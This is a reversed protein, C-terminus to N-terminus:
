QNAEAYFDEARIDYNLNETKDIIREQCINQRLEFNATVVLTKPDKQKIEAFFNKIEDGKKLEKEFEKLLEQKGFELIEKESKETYKIDQEYYTIKEICFGGLDYNKSKSEYHEFKIASPTFIKEGSKQSKISIKTRKKGTLIKEEFVKKYERSISKNTLAYIEGYSHVYRIGTQVSDVAGSVLLDGKEVFERKKVMTQGERVDLEDIIGDCAAVLDCPVSFDLPEEKEIREKIEVYARSGKINIGIWAVTDLKTMISNQVKKRDINDLRAGKYIGFEKLASFIEETKTAKNGSIDIGMLHTSYFIVGGFFLVAGFLAFRRKKYRHVAFPAGTKKIIKVKTKTKKAASKIKKFDKAYINAFLVNEGEKKIGWLLLNEAACLNIFRETFFGETKVTVAGKLLESFKSLLM